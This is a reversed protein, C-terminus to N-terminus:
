GGLWAAAAGTLVAALVLTAAIWAAWWARESPAESSAGAAGPVTALRSALESRSDGGCRAQDQVIALVLSVDFPRLGLHRGLANLKQRREPPLVAASGGDLADLTRSALVWRADDAALAPRCVVRPARMADTLRLGNAARLMPM